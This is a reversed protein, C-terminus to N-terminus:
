RYRKGFIDGMAPPNVGMPHCKKLHRLVDVVDETKRGCIEKQADFDASDQKVIKKRYAVSPFVCEQIVRDQIFASIFFEAVIDSGKILIGVFQCCLNRECWGEDM